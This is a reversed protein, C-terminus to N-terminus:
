EFHIEFIMEFIINFEHVLYYYYYVGFVHVDLTSIIFVCTTFMHGSLSTDVGIIFNINWAVFISSAFTFCFVFIVFGM